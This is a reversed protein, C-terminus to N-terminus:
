QNDNKSGFIGRAGSGISESRQGLNKGHWAVFDEIVGNVAKDRHRVADNEVQNLVRIELTQPPDLLNAKRMVHIRPCQMGTKVMGQPSKVEHGLRDLNQTEFSCLDAFFLALRYM